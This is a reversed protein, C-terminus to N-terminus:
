GTSGAARLAMLGAIAFAAGLLVLVLPSLTPIAVFATSLITATSSNNVLNPDGNSNTVGATNVFTGPTSPLLIQLTITASASPALTGVTCTVTTTGSCTGQTSTASQLTTGAPLTDTVVTDLADGSGTNTVVITYTVTGGLVFTQGNATKTIRVDTPLAATVTASTTSSLDNSDPDATAASVTATNAVNSGVTASSALHVVFTFSATSTAPMTPTSCTITGNAGPAPTTCSWGGPLTASVFTLGGALTDTVSVGSADSPGGNTVTVNYTLDTGAPVTAPGSKGISIDAVPTVTTTVSDENDGSDTDYTLTTVSATNTVSTNPGPSIVLTFQASEGSALSPWYCDVTGGNGVALETCSAAPGNNQTFSVYTTQNPLPDRFQVDNATEPGSSTVTITYTITDGAQVTPPGTKDVSISTASTTLSTSSSNNDPVPDETTSSVTAINEYLTGSATGSPIHGTLTFTSSSGSPYNSASCSITGGSGATPTTCTLVPGSNPVLSVFTMTGPLTDDFSLTASTDPGNNGVTVTYVVDSDPGAATPGTKSVYLDSRPPFPTHTTASGTDNEENFDTPGTATAINTFFTGDAAGAGIHFVFVFVASGGAAITGGTCVVQGGNGVGPDTCSFGLAGTVSSSVFTMGVPINSPITDTLTVTTAADPGNNLVTVTYSVDTNAAAEEPGTKTVTLDSEQALAVSSVVLLSLLSLWRFNKLVSVSRDRTPTNQLPIKASMLPRNSTAM